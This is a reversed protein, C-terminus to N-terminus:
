WPYWFKSFMATPTTNARLAKTATNFEQFIESLVLFFERHFFGYVFPNTEFDLWMKGLYEFLVFLM